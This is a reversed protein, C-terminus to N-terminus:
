PGSHWRQGRVAEPHQRLLPLYSRTAGCTLLDVAGRRQLTAFRGILDANCGQWSELHRQMTAALHDRAHSLQAEAKPLLEIRAHIWSPFRQQLDPDALLSLLTPSSGSPSDPAQGPADVASELVDLLPLYCEISAPLVSTRGGAIGAASIACLASSRASCPCGSRSEGAAM